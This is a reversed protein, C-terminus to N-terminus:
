AQARHRVRGRGSVYGWRLPQARNPKRGHWSGTNERMRAQLGRGIRGTQAQLKRGTRGAQTWKCANAGLANAGATASACLTRARDWADTGPTQAWDWGVVVRLMREGEISDCAGVTMKRQRGRWGRAGGVIYLGMPAGEYIVRSKLM